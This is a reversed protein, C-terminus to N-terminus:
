AAGAEASEGSDKARDHVSFRRCHTRILECFLETKDMDMMEAHVAFRRALDAPVAFTLKRPKEAQQPDPKSANRTRAM